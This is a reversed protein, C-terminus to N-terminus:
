VSQTKTIILIFLVLCIALSFFFIYIYIVINDQHKPGDRKVAIPARDSGHCHPGPRAGYHRIDASDHYYFHYYIHYYRRWRRCHRDHINDHQVQAHERRWPRDRFLRVGVCASRRTRHTHPFQRLRTLKKRTHLHRVNEHVHGDVTPVACSSTSM